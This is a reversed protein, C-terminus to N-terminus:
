RISSGIPSLHLGEVTGSEGVMAVVMFREASGMFRTVWKGSLDLIPRDVTGAITHKPGQPPEGVLISLTMVGGPNMHRALRTGRTLGLASLRTGEIWIRRQGKNTGSKLTWTNTKATLANM